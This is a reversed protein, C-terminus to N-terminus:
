YEPNIIKLKVRGLRNDWREKVPCIVCGERIHKGNTTTKGEAMKIVEELKFPVNEALIPVTPVNWKTMLERFDAWDLWRGGPDLVDFAMFQQIQIGYDYGKQLSGGFVEGYVTFNPNDECFKRLGATNELATWWLSKSPKFNVVHKEYVKKAKEISEETGDSYFDILQELTWNPVTSYEKKWETRSGCYMQGNQFVYKASCGHIKESLNVLEGEKFCMAYQMFADVDYKPYEGSPGKAVDGGTLKKKKGNTILGDDIPPEYHEVGLAEAADQGETLGEPAPVMLGYSITGRLKKTKVKAYTGGSNGDKDYKAELFNFEQRTTDVLSQPPVWCCLQGLRDKWDNINGLCVYLSNPVDIIALKDANPCPKLEKLIFTPVKHTSKEENIITSSM